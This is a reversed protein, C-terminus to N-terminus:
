IKTSLLGVIPIEAQTFKASAILKEESLPPKGFYVLNDLTIREDTIIM